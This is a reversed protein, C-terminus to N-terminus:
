THDTYKMTRPDEDVEGNVMYWSPVFFFSVQRVSAEELRINKENGIYGGDGREKRM